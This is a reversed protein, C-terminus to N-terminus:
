GGLKETLSVDVGFPNCWVVGDFRIYQEMQFESIKFKKNVTLNLWKKNEQYTFIQWDVM